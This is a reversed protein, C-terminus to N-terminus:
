MPRQSGTFPRFDIRVQALDFVKAASDVHNQVDIRGVFVFGQVCEALMIDFEPSRAVVFPVFQVDIEFVRVSVQQFKPASLM